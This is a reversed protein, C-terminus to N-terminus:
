SRATPHSPRSQWSQRAHNIASPSTTHDQRRPAPTLDPPNMGTRRRHCSPRDGLLARLFGNFGNRLSPRVAEASGTHEHADRGVSQVRSRPHLACGTKGAGERSPRRRRRKFTAQARGPPHFRRLVRALLAALVRIQSWAVAHVGTINYYLMQKHIVGRGVIVSMTVAVSMAMAVAVIGGRRM